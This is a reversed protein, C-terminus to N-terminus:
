STSARGSCSCWRRIRAPGSRSRWGPARPRASAACRSPSCSSRRIRSDAPTVVPDIPVAALAKLNADWFQDFDAPRPVAPTLKSPAVAAGLKAVAGAEYGPVTVEVYVMMPERVVVDITSPGKSFDLVGTELIELNNKRIKYLYGGPAPASGSPLTATWAVTDGLAYIGTANRPVFTPKVLAPGPPAAIPVTSRPPAGGPLRRRPGRRPQRSVLSM